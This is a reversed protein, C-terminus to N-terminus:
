KYNFDVNIVLYYLNIQIYMVSLANTYRRYTTNIHPNADYILRFIVIHM